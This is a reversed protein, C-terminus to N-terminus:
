LGDVGDVLWDKLEWVLRRAAVELAEDRMRPVEIITRKSGAGRITGGMSSGGGSTLVLGVRRSSFSISLASFPLPHITVKQSPLPTSPPSARAKGKGGLTRWFSSGSSSSRSSAALRQTLAAYSAAPAYSSARRRAEGRTDARAPARHVGRGREGWIRAGLGRPACTAADPLLPGHLRAARALSPPRLRRGLRGRPVKLAIFLDLIPTERQLSSLSPHRSQSSQSTPLKSQPPSIHSTFPFPDSTYPPRILSDYLPLYISRLVNMSTTYFVRNVLRLGVALWYLTKRQERADEIDYADSFTAYVIQLLLHPPLASLTRWSGGPPGPPPSHASVSASPRLASATSQPEHPLSPDFFGCALLVLLAPSADDSTLYKTPQDHVSGSM